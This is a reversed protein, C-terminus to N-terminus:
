VNFICIILLSVDSNLFSDYLPPPHLGPTDNNDLKIAALAEDINIPALVALGLSHVNFFFFFFFAVYMPLRPTPTPLCLMSTPLPLPPMPMTTHNLLM